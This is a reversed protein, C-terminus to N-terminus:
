DGSGLQKLQSELQSQQDNLERLLTELNAFTQKQRTYWTSLRRQEKEIATDINEMIGAYNAKLTMMAGNESKLSLQANIVDPSASPTVNVDNYKLEKELFYQVTQVLGQKIRVQGSHSGETLDDISIALGRASGARCTYYYGGKSEDRSCQEGGIYVNSINGNADVEYSVDYIGAETIGQIHNNYRFDPSTSTGTGSTVFFNVLDTIHNNLMDSYNEEDMSQLFDSRPAKVLLGYTSSTSDTDTKIGMNALCSLIDGSLLDDATTMSQFGPPTGGVVAMFRSKVLQVGYNGTLLGGKEATLTSKSYNDANANNPDNTTREKDEDVATLDRITMLVSNVADLFNQISTEVSAVDTSVTLNAEGVGQLTLSVGDLLDTITNSESELAMPWNDVHYIANSSKTISWNSSAEIQGSLVPSTLSQINNVQIFYKSSDEEDAVLEVADSGLRSKLEEVVDQMTKGSKLEIVESTGDNKVVTFQLKPSHEIHYSRDSQRRYFSGSDIVVQGVTDKTYKATKSGKSQAFNQVDKIELATDGNTDTSTTANVGQATLASTIADLIQQNTMDSKLADGNADKDIVFTTGDKMAVTYALDEATGSDIQDNITATAFTLTTTAKSLTPNFNTDAYMYSPLGEDYSGSVGLSSLANGDIEINKIGSFAISGDDNLTSGGIKSRLFEALQDTTRIESPDLSFVATKTSNAYTVVVDVPNDSLGQLADGSTYALTYSPRIEEGASNATRTLSVINDITLEGGNVQAQIYNEGAAHLFKEKLDDISATGDITFSVSQGTNLTATYTYKTPNTLAETLSVSTDSKWVSETSANSEMGRLDCSYISLTNSSGASKGAVQYVYGNGTNVISISIGPNKSTNNIMSAFSELTTNPPVNFSYEKGAYEFRFQQTTGSTNIIDSKSEFVAGTNCWVANSAIQTVNIKHFSDDASGAALATLVKEDTSVANKTVFNNVSGITALMEKAASMQDIVTNFADYRLQWDSRWAQLQNLQTKEVSYLQELTTDFNTDMGSLGSLATSGSISISM